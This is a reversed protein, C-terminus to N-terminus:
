YFSDSVVLSNAEKGIMICSTGRKEIQSLLIVFFNIAKNCFLVFKKKKHKLFNNQIIIDMEM